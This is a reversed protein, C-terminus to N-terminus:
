ESGSIRGTKRRKEQENKYQQLNRQRLKEAATKPKNDGGPQKTNANFGTRKDFSEDADQKAKEVEKDVDTAPKPNMGKDEMVQLTALYMANPHIMADDQPDRINVAVSEIEDLMAEHEENGAFDLDFEDVVREMGKEYREANKQQVQEQRKKQKQKQEAEDIQRQFQEYAKSALRQPLKDEAYQLKARRKLNSWESSSLMDKRSQDLYGAEALTSEDIDDLEFGEDVVDLKSKSSTQNPKGSPEQQGESLFNQLDEKSLNGKEAATKIIDGLMPNQEVLNNIYKIQEEKEKKEKRLKTYNKQSEKWSKVAKKPDGGFTDNLVKEYEDLTEKDTSEDVVENDDSQENKDTSKTDEASDEDKNNIYSNKQDNDLKKDSKDSNEQSKQDDNGEEGESDTKKGYRKEKIFNNLSQERHKELENSKENPQTIENVSM